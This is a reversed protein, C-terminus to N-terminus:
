LVSLLEAMSEAAQRDLERGKALAALQAAKPAEKEKAVDLQRECERFLRSAGECLKVAAASGAGPGIEDFFAAAQGRCEKWVMGNWWHGHSTGMGGEVCEMWQEWAGDGARYGEKQFEEPAKRMRLATALASRLLGGRDAVLDDKQFLVFDAWGEKELCEKWGDFGLSALESPASRNWPQLFLFGKQDYGVVLQYELFALMAASGSDLHARLAANAADIEGPASKRDIRIEGSKRLGMDRLARYLADMRWAYPGSPCLEKHIHIMFAHGSYGFLEATTWDLDLFDSAGKISGMLTTCLPPQKLDALEMITLPEKMRQLFNRYKGDMAQLEGPTIGFWSKFATTFNDQSSYGFAAAVDVIREGSMLAKAAETLRRKRLYGSPTEGTVNYFKQRLRNESYGSAKELEPGHNGDCLHKELWASMRLVLLRDDM